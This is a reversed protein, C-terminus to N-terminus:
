LSEWFEKLGETDETLKYVAEVAQLKSETTLHGKPYQQVAYSLNPQRVYKRKGNVYVVIVYDYGSDAQEFELQKKVKSILVLM